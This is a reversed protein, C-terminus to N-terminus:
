TPTRITGQAERSIKQGLMREMVMAGDYAKRKGNNGNKAEVSSQPPLGTEPHAMQSLEAEVAELRM